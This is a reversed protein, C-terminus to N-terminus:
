NAEGDLPLLVCAAEDSNRVLLRKGSLAATNWSVDGIVPIKALENFETPTAAVLAIDGSEATILLKDGALLVQGQRYRGRKWQKEGTDLAICELIGDSLGYVFGEHVVASTFKTKLVTANEWVVSITWRQDELSFQILRAGTGYGKTLLVRNADIVVPQSVSAAGNSAGLWPTSWLQEGSEIAYGALQKESVYLIQLQGSLETLVPSSYSIQDDGGRWVEQGSERDFAVLTQKSDGAGGLPVVVRDELVLPSGSRGWAVESEFEAQTVDALQLLDQAWVEAGSEIELCVCRSVASVAYVRNGAISPTSRPGVGGMPNFHRSDMSYKWLLGGDVISYATVWEQDDRQEMTVAVDGQVAFGSWGAGIDQKWVIEPPHTKWDASLSVNNLTANRDPGLFQPFDSERPELWQADVSVLDASNPLEASKASRLRFQPVLDGDLRVLEYRVFFFIGAMIPLLLVAKWYLRNASSLFLGWCIFLWCLGSLLVTFVNALAYDFNHALSRLVVIAVALVAALWFPLWYWRRRPSRTAAIESNM